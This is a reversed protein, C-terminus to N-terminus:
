YLVKMKLFNIQHERRIEELTTEPDFNEWVPNRDEPKIPLIRYGRKPDREADPLYPVEYEELFAKLSTKNLQEQVEEATWYSYPNLRPSVIGSGDEIEIEDGKITALIGNPFIDELRMGDGIDDFVLDAHRSAEVNHKVGRLKKDSV